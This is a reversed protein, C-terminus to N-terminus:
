INPQSNLDPKFTIWYMNPEPSKGTFTFSNKTVKASDTFGKEDWKHNLYIYPNKYNKVTGNITYSVPKQALMASAAFVATFTLLKHM